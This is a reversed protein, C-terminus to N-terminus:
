IPRIIDNDSDIEVVRPRQALDCHVRAAMGAARALAMVAEGQTWGIEVLATGDPALLDRLVPVFVRYDDLGQAGAFLAAHPEHALVSADLSAGTEVYPPNALVLDFRGLASAWHDQTWDGAIMEARTSLGLADANRRAIALAGHSREIGVGTAGPWQSLATLLLAGSGTGLDLIRLPPRRREIAVAILTETDGRPILVDRTVIFDLGWFEQHGTIYAVPEHTMRREILTDYGDPVAGQMHRLIMESRTVGLAHALLVEADLRATDSSQGLRRTAAVLAQAVNM